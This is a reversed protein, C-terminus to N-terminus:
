NREQYMGHPNSNREFVLGAEAKDHEQSYVHCLNKGRKSM